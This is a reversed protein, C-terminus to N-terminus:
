RSPAEVVELMEALRTLDVVKRVPGNPAVVCRVSGGGARQRLDLQILAAVGSSDMFELERLDVEARADPALEGLAAEFAPIAGLDLEGGLRIGVAGDEAPAVAVTFREGREPESPTPQTM